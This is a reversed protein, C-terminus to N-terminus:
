SSSVAVNGYGIALLVDQLNKNVESPKIFVASALSPSVAPNNPEAVNSVELTPLTLFGTKLPYLNYCLTHSSAPLIRFQTQRKGSFMFDESASLKTEFEQVFITHNKLCYSVTLVEGSLGFAPVNATVSFPPVNLAIIPATSVFEVYGSPDSQRRWKLTLNGLFAGRQQVPLHSPAVLCHCESVEDRSCLVCQEICSDNLGAETVGNRQNFSSELIVLQWPSACVVESVLLFPENVIACEIEKFATSLTRYNVVFPAITKVVFPYEKHCIFAVEAWQDRIQVTIPYSVNVNLEREGEVSSCLYVTKEWKEGIDLKDLKLVVASGNSSTSGSATPLVSGGGVSPTTECLFASNFPKNPMDGLLLHINVNSIYSREKNEMLLTIPYYESLLSPPHHLVTVELLPKRPTISILSSPTIKAWEKDVEVTPVPNRDVNWELVASCFSSPQGFAARVSQIEVTEVTDGTDNTSAPFSFSFSKVTSPDLTLTVLDGVHCWSDYASKSFQVSLNSLTLPLPANSRLYVEVEVVGDAAVSPRTFRVKCEVCSTIPTFQIVFRLPTESAKMSAWLPVMNQGPEPSPVGGSFIADLNAQLRKREEFLIPMYSSILEIAACFYEELNGLSYACRVITFLANSLAPLWRERRYVETVMKLLTMAKEFHNVEYYEQAMLVRLYAPFREPNFLKIIALAKSLLPIALWSHQVIYEAAQMVAIFDQKKEKDSPENDTLCSRWPKQGFYEVPPLNITSPQSLTMAAERCLEKARRKRELAYMAAQYYYTGANQTLVAKNGHKVAESFLDGFASFQRCMWEAHEYALVRLGIEVSFREIHRRFQVAPHAGPQSTDDHEFSLKCIKYNMFGAVMKFEMMRDDALYMAELLHNYAIRYYRLAGVLDQKLETFFAIKFNHRIILLQQNQRNLNDRHSKVKKFQNGYYQTARDFIITEMKAIFGQPRDTYPLVLLNTRHLECALSLANGQETEHSGEEYQQPPISQILVVLFETSRGTLSSRLTQLKAACEVKKEEWHVDNWDLDYFFVLVSPLQKTHKDLWSSKLLGVPVYDDYPVRQNESRKPFCHDPQVDIYEIMNRTARKGATFETWVNKHVANNKIDLGAFAVVCRSNQTIAQPFKLSAM